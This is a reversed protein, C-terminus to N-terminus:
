SSVFMPKINISHESPQRVFAFFYSFQGSFSLHPDYIWQFMVFSDMAKPRILKQLSFVISFVVNWKKM